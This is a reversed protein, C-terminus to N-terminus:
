CHRAHAGVSRRRSLTDAFRKVLPTTTLSPNTRWTYVLKHPADVVEFKGLIWVVSGDPFQNAIRYSGGVRLDIEAYTCTVPRPGWWTKLHVPQTWAEFVQQAPAHITRRVELAIMEPGAASTFKDGV